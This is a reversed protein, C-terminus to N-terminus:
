DDVPLSLKQKVEIQMKDRHQVVPAKDMEEQEGAIWEMLPTALAVYEKLIEQVQLLVM